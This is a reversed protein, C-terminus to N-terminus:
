DGSTQVEIVSIWKTGSDIDVRLWPGGTSTGAYYADAGTGRPKLGCAALADKLRRLEDAAQVASGYDAYRHRAVAEGDGKYIGTYSVRDLKGQPTGPAPQPCADDFGVRPFRVAEDAPKDSLKWHWTGYLPVDSETLGDFADGTKYPNGDAVPTPTPGGAPRVKQGGGGQVLAWSMGGVVAVAVAVAVAGARLRVRRRNGRARLEAASPMRLTVDDLLEEVEAM